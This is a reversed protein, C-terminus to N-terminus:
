FCCSFLLCPGFCCHSSHVHGLNLLDSCLQLRGRSWHELGGYIVGGEVACDVGALVGHKDSWLVCRPKLPFYPFFNQLLFHPLINLLM